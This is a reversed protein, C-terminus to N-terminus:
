FDCIRSLIFKSFETNSEIVSTLVKHLKRDTISDLVSLILFITFLHSFIIDGVM